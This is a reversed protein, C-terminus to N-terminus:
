YRVLRLLKRRGPDAIKLFFVVSSITTFRHAAAFEFPAEPQVIRERWLAEAVKDLRPRNGLWPDSLRPIPLPSRLREVMLWCLAIMNRFEPGDSTFFALDPLPLKQFAFALDLLLSLREFCHHVSHLCLFLLEDSPSLIQAAVGHFPLFLARDWAREIEFDFVLPNEVSHHLEVDINIRRLRRHRDDWPGCPLFGLEALLGEAASVHAPRVLLDLDSCSRLAADGYLREGLWPGKLSIVPIDRQHFAALTERLSSTWVFARHRAERQIDFAANRLGSPLQDQISILRDAIWPLVNEEGAVQLLALGETDSGCARAPQGGLVDLLCRM